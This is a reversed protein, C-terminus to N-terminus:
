HQEDGWQVSISWSPPCEQGNAREGTQRHLFFLSFSLSPSLLLLTVKGNKTVIVIRCVWVECKVRQVRSVHTMAVVSKM